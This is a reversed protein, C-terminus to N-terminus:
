PILRHQLSCCRGYCDHHLIISNLLHYVLTTPLVRTKSVHSRRHAASRWFGPFRQSTLASPTKGSAPLQNFVPTAGMNSWLQFVEYGPTTCNTARKSHFCSAPLQTEGSPGFYFITSKQRRDKAISTNICTQLAIFITVVM